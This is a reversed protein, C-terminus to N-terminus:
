APAAPTGGCILCVPSVSPNESRSPTGLEARRGLYPLGGKAGLEAHSKIGAGDVFHAHEGLGFEVL